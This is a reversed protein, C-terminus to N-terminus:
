RAENRTRLDRSRRRPSRRRRRTSTTKPPCAITEKRDHRDPSAHRGGTLCVTFLSGHILIDHKSFVTPSDLPISKPSMGRSSGKETISFMGDMCLLPRTHGRKPQTTTPSGDKKHQAGAEEHTPESESRLLRVDM